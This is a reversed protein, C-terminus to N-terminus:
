VILENEMQNNNEGLLNLNFQEILEHATDPAVLINNALNIREQINNNNLGLNFQNNYFVILNRILQTTQNQNIDIGTYTNIFDFICDRVDDMTDENFRNLINTWINNIEVQQNNWNLIFLETQLMYLKSQNLNNGIGNDYGNNLNINFFFDNNNRIFVHHQGVGNHIGRMASVAGSLLVPPFYQLNNINLDDINDKPIIPVNNVNINNPILEQLINIVSQTINEGLINLLTSVDGRFNHNNNFLSYLIPLTIFNSFCRSSECLYLATIKRATIINQADINQVNNVDLLNIFDNYGFNDQNLLNSYNGGGVVYDLRINNNNVEITIPLSQFNNNNIFNVNYVWVFPTYPPNLSPINNSIISLRLFDSINNVNYSEFPAQNADFANENVHGEISIVLSATYIIDYVRAM